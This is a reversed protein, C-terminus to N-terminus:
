TKSLDIEISKSEHPSNSKQDSNLNGNSKKKSNKLEKKLQENEEKLSETMVELSFVNEMCQKGEEALRRFSITPRIKGFQPEYEGESMTEAVFKIVQQCGEARKLIQEFERRLQQIKEELTM